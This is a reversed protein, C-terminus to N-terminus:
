TETLGSETIIYDMRVDTDETKFEDVIQCDYALCVTTVDPFESLRRDYYGKGHGIRNGCRDVAVCPVVILNPLQEYLDYPLEPEYIGYKGKKLDYFSDFELFLMETDSMVRPLFILKDGKTTEELLKDTEVESGQNYYLYVADAEKWEPMAKLTRIIKASAKRRYGAPLKDRLKLTEKRIEAKTKM